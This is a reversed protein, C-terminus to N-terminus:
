KGSQVLCFASILSWQFLEAGGVKGMGSLIIKPIVSINKLFSFIGSLKKFSGTNYFM